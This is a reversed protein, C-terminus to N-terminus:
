SPIRLTIIGAGDRVSRDDTVRPLERRSREQALERQGPQRGSLGRHALGVFRNRWAGDRQDEAVAEMVRRGVSAGVEVEERPPRERGPTLVEIATLPSGGCCDAGGVACQVEDSGLIQLAKSLQKLMEPAAFSLIGCGAENAACELEKVAREFAKGRAAEEHPEAEDLELAATLVESILREIKGDAFAAEAIKQFEVDLDRNPRDVLFPYLIKGADGLHVQGTRFKEGLNEIAEIAGFRALQHYYLAVGVSKIREPSVECDCLDLDPLDIAPWGQQWQGMAPWGGGIGTQAHTVGGPPTASVIAKLTPVFEPSNYPVAQAQMKEHLEQLHAENVIPHGAAACERRIKDEYLRRAVVGFVRSAEEKLPAASITEARDYVGHLLAEPLAPHQDVYPELESGLLLTIKDAEPKLGADEIAYARIELPDRSYQMAPPIPSAPDRGVVTLCHHRFEDITPEGPAWPWKEIDAMTRVSRKTVAIM